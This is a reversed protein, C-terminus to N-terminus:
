LSELTDAPQTPEPPAESPVDVQSSPPATTMKRRREGVKWIVDKLEQVVEGGPGWKEVGGLSGTAAEEGLATTAGLGISLGMGSERRAKAIKIREERSLRSRERSFAAKAGTDAEFVEEIGPLPLHQTSTALLLHPTADDILAGEAEVGEANVVSPRFGNAAALAAAEAEDDYPSAPDAKDSDDSADHGLGPLDDFEEEEDSPVIPPNIIDLLRGRGRECERLALGLERRLREYAQLAQSEEVDPGTSLMTSASRSHRLRKLPSSNTSSSPDEKLASVCQDLHERADELASSIAAIHAAFRSMTSPMPAFSVRNASKQWKAANDEDAHVLNDLDGESTDFNAMVPTPNSDRLNQQEMEVLAETLMSFSDILASSLLGMVSRVDEWYGEDEEDGFRLALLHSCAYRKAALAGQLSHNLSSYLLPHRSPQVNTFKSASTFLSSRASPPSRLDASFYNAPPTRFAEM